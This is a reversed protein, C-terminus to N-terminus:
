CLRPRCAINPAGSVYVLTPNYMRFSGNVHRQVPAPRHVDGDRRDDTPQATSLNGALSLNTNVLFDATYHIDLGSFTFEGETISHM